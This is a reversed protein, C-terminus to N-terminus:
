FNVHYIQWGTSHGIFLTQSEDNYWFAPKYIKIDELQRDNFEIGKQDFTRIHLNTYAWPTPTGPTGSILKGEQVALMESSGLFAASLFLNGIEKVGFTSVPIESTIDLLYCTDKDMLLLRNDNESFYAQRFRVPIRNIVTGDRDIILTQFEFTQDQTNKQYFSVVFYQGSKSAKASRVQWDALDYAMETEGELNIMRIYSNYKAPGDRNPTIETLASFLLNDALEVSIINESHYQYEPRIKFNSLIEGEPSIIHVHNLFDISILNKTRPDVRYVPQPLDYILKEKFAGIEIGDKDYWRVRLEPNDPDGTRQTTGWFETEPFYFHSVAELSITNKKLRIIQSNVPIPEDSIKANKMWTIINQHESNESQLTYINQGASLIFILVITLLAIIIMAVRM